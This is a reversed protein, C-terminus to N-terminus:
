QRRRWVFVSLLLIGFLTRAVPKGAGTRMDIHSCGTDAVLPKVECAVTMSYFTSQDEFKVGILYDGLKLGEAIAIQRHGVGASEALVTEPNDARYIEPAATAHTGETTVTLVTNDDLRVVYWDDDQLVFDTSEQCSVRQATDISDNEELADDDASSPDPLPQSGGPIGSSPEDIPECDLVLQYSDSNYDDTQENFWPNVLIVMTEGTSTFSLSENGTPTESSALADQPFSM